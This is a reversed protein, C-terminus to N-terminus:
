KCTHEKEHKGCFFGLCLDCETIAVRQCVECEETDEDADDVLDTDDDFIAPSWDKPVAM